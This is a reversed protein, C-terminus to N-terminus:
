GTFTPAVAPTEHDAGAPNSLDCTGGITAGGGVTVTYDDCAAGVVRWGGTVAVVQVDALNTGGVTPEGTGRDPVWVDFTGRGSGDLHMTAGPGDSTLSTVRGPAARPYPRSLVIQWPPVPGLDVDGPCQNFKYHILLPPPTGGPEGISHPDGCAQIWQWWASGIVMQDEVQGYHAVNQQNADPDDFWGYEGIWLPAGYQDAQFGFYNFVVDMPLPTISDGYNHGSFVLNEDATFDYPVTTGVVTTEFIAMHSFGGAAQEAMRISQIARDFYVGLRQVATDGDTGLNPENLLDYGAVAPEHAFSTAVAGWADVLETMIGDTDAYFNDWSQQVAPADERSGPTCTNAFDTGPDFITAWQPAGDWGNALSTGPPCVTGPPSAIYKGWADQHMDIVVYLGNQKAAAVADIIKDLYSQDIVDREPELASWSILLRVADFGQAAMDAFDDPKLPVPAPYAPNPLYYDGLASLNVGRLLVERGESDLIQADAGHTAHLPLLEALASPSATRAPAAGVVLAAVVILTVVAPGLRRTM